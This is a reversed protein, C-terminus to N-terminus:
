FRRKSRQVSGHMASFLQNECPSFVQLACRSSSWLATSFAVCRSVFCLEVGPCYPLTRPSPSCGAEAPHIDRETVLVTGRPDHNVSNPSLYKLSIDVHFQVAPRSIGNAVQTKQLINCFDHEPSQLRPFGTCVVSNATTNTATLDIFCFRV